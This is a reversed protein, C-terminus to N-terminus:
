TYSIKSDQEIIENSVSEVIDNELSITNESVTETETQVVVDNKECASLSLIAMTLTLLLISKKM